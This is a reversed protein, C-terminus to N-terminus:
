GADDVREFQGSEVRDLALNLGAAVQEASVNPASGPFLSMHKIGLGGPGFLRGAARQVEISMIHRQLIFATM